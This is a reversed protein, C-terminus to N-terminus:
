HWVSPMTDIGSMRMPYICDGEDLITIKSPDIDTLSLICPENPKSNSKLLRVVVPSGTPYDPVPLWRVHAVHLKDFSLFQVVWAYLSRGRVVATIVSACRNMKEQYRRVGTMPVGSVFEVGCIKARKHITWVTPNLETGDHEDRVIQRLCLCVSLGPVTDRHRRNSKLHTCCTELSIPKPPRFNISGMVHESYVRAISAECYKRQKSM